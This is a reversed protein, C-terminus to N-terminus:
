KKIAVGIASLGLMVGMLAFVFALVGIMSGAIVYERTIYVNESVQITEILTNTVDMFLVEMAYSLADSISATESFAYLLDGIIEKGFSMLDTTSMTEILGFWAELGWFLESTSSPTLPIIAFKVTFPSAIKTTYAVAIVDNMDWYFSAVRENNYLGDATEDQWETLIADWTETAIDYKKYYIYDTTINGWFVYLKDNIRDFSLSPNALHGQGTQVMKEAGWSDLTYNYFYYVINHAPTLYTVYVNDGSAIPSHSDSEISSTTHIEASWSTGNWRRSRLYADADMSLTVFMKNNTLPIAVPMHYGNTLKYPFGSQTIWSGDTTTTKSVYSMFSAGTMNYYGIWAHGSTDASVTPRYFISGAFYVATQEVTDWSITGDSNPTGQRFYIYATEPARAYFVRTGNYWVSINSGNNAAAITTPESWTIGDLSTRFVINTGDFYFLWYRGSAYFLKRQFGGYVAKYGLTGTAQGVTSLTENIGIGLGQITIGDSMGFPIEKGFTSADSIGTTESFTYTFEQGGESEEGIYSDAIIVCDGYMGVVGGFNSSSAGFGIRAINAKASTNRTTNRISVGNLWFQQNATSSKEAKIEIFYWTGTDPTSTYEYVDWGESGHTTFQWKTSSVAVSAYFDATGFSAAGVRLQTSFLTGSSPLDYIKLYVRVYILTQGTFTKIEYAAKNDTIQSRMAYTGHHKHVSQVELTQGADLQQSTWASFDGEEFGNNFFETAYVIEMMSALIALSLIFVILIPRIRM